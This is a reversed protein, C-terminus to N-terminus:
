RAAAVSDIIPTLRRHIVEAAWRNGAVSFHLNPAFLRDVETPPVRRIEEVLDLFAVGLREAENRVFHRWRAADDDQYDWAGPLYLLVLRSGKAENVGHLEAFVRTLIERVREDEALGHRAREEADEGFLGRAIRVLALRGVAEAYLARRRTLWWTRPVPRNVVVISDGRPELLPKGFGMFRDSKMREFDDTLLALLQLHHDLRTGDRKYWLYAQDVGYGGLGM